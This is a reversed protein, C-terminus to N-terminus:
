CVHEDIDSVFCQCYECQGRKVIRTGKLRSVNESNQERVSRKTLALHTKKLKSQRGKASPSDAM